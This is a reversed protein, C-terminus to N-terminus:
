PCEDREGGRYIIFNKASFLCRISGDCTERGYLYSLKILVNMLAHFICFNQIWFHLLYSFNSRFKYEGLDKTVFSIFLCRVPQGDTKVPSPSNM